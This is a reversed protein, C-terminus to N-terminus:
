AQRLQKKENHKVAWFNYNCNMAFFMCIIVFILGGIYYLVNQDPDIEHHHEKDQIKMILLFSFMRYLIVWALWNIFNTIALVLRVKESNKYICVFIYPVLFLASIGAAVFRYKKGDGPWDDMIIGDVFVTLIIVFIVTIQLLFILAIGIHAPCICCCGRDKREKKAM